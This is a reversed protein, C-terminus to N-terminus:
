ACLPSSPPGSAADLIAARVCTVPSRLRCRPRCCAGRAGDVEPGRKGEKGKVKGEM